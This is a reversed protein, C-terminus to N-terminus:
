AAAWHSAAGFSHRTPEVVSCTDIESSFLNRVQDALQHQVKMKEDASTPQDGDFEILTLRQRAENPSALLFIKTHRTPWEFLSLRGDSLREWCELRRENAACCISHWLKNPDKTGIVIMTLAWFSAPSMIPIFFLNAGLGRYPYDQRPKKSPADSALHTM